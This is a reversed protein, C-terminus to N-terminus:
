RDGDGLQLVADSGTLRIEGEPAAARAAKIAYAAVGLVQTAVHAVVASQGAAHRPAGSLGRAAPWQMAGPQRGRATVSRCTLAIGPTGAISNNPPM